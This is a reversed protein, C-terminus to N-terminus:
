CLRLIFHADSENYEYCFERPTYITKDKFKFEFHSTELIGHEKLITSIIDPVTKHVFARQNVCKHLHTFSPM